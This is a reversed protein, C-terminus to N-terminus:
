KALAGAQRAAEARLRLEVEWGEHRIRLDLYNLFRVVAFYGAVIWLAVNLCIASALHGPTWTNLFIGCFLFGLSCFAAAMLVAFFASTITKLVLDGSAPEHLIRSRRGVTMRNQDAGFLPNKELLVVENIYPRFSRAGLAWLGFLGILVMESGAEFHRDPSLTAVYLLLFLVGRVVFQTWVIHPLMKFTSSVVGRISPRETFVVRGIFATTFVAAAQAQVAVVVCACWVYRIIQLIWEDLDFDRPDLDAMWTLFYLNFAAFPAAGLTFTIAVPALYRRLVLLSLDLTDLFDRERIAIQTQDFQM